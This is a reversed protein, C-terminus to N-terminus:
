KYEKEHYQRIAALVREKEGLNILDMPTDGDLKPNPAYLWITQDQPGELIKALEDIVESVEYVWGETVM